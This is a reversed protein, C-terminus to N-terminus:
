DCRHLAWQAHRLWDPLTMAQPVLNKTPHLPFWPEPPLPEQWSYCVLGVRSVGPEEPLEGPGTEGGLGM